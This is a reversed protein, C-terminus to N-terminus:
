PQRRLCSLLSFLITDEIDHKWRKKIQCFDSESLYIPEKKELHKGFDFMPSQVDVGDHYQKMTYIKNQQLNDVTTIQDFRVTLLFRDSIIEM